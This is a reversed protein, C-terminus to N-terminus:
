SVQNQRVWEYMFVTSAQAVNLSSIEGLQPLKFTDDCNKLVLDSIGKEENGLVLAIRGQMNANWMLNESHESAGVVWFGQSKLYDLTRTINSVQAVPIHSVAGASTKYVASTVSASRANPIVVCTAGVSEASRIIAGLNGVDTIHDCVVILSMQEDTMLSELEAYKFPSAYAIIGQTNADGATKKLQKSPVKEVSVRKKQVQDIINKLLADQEINESMLVHKLEVGSQLAELIPRKGFIIDKKNNNKL